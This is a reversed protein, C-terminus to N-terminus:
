KFHYTGLTVWLGADLVRVRGPCVPLAQDVLGQRRQPTWGSPINRPVSLNYVSVIDAAARRFSSNYWRLAHAQILFASDPLSWRNPM